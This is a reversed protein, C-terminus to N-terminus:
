RTQNYEYDERASKGKMLDAPFPARTKNVEAHVDLASQNIWKELLVLSDPNTTSQFAEFQECGPELLVEACRASLLACLEAGKGTAATISIILRISM